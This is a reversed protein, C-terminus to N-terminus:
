ADKVGSPGEEPPPTATHGAGSARVAAARAAQVGVAWHVFGPTHIIWGWAQVAIVFGIVAGALIDYVHHKNDHVRTSAIWAALFLPATVVASVVLQWLAARWHFGERTHAAAASIDTAAAAAAWLRTHAARSLMPAEHTALHLTAPLTDSSVGRAMLLPQVRSGEPPSLDSSVTDTGAMDVPRPATAGSTVGTAAASPEAAPQPGPPMVAADPSHLGTAAAVEAEEAEAAAAEVDYATSMNGVRPALEGVNHGSTASGWWPRLMGHSLVWPWGETGTMLSAVAALWLSLLTLGVFSLSSHGSPFSAQADNIEAKEARCHSIDGYRGNHTLSDYETWNGSAQAEAFGQYDCLAFFSPRPKSNINKLVNTVAVTGCVAMCFGGAVAWAAGRGLSAWMVVAERRPLLRKLPGWSADPTASNTSVGHLAAEASPPHVGLTIALIVGVPAVWAILVAAWTPVTSAHKPFSLAPDRETFSLPVPPVFTQLAQSAIAAAAVFGLLALIRGTEPSLRLMTIHPTPCRRALSVVPFSRM